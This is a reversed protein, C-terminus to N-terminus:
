SVGVVDFLFWLFVLLYLASICTPAGGRRRCADGTRPFGDSSPPQRRRFDSSCWGALGDSGEGSAALGGFFAVLPAAILAL